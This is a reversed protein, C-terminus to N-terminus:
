SKARAMGGALEGAAGDNAHSADLKRQFGRLTWGNSWCRVAIGRNSPLQNRAGGAACSRFYDLLLGSRSVPLEGPGDLDRSGQLVSACGCKYLSVRTAFRRCLEGVFVRAGTQDLTGRPRRTRRAFIDVDPLPFSADFLS